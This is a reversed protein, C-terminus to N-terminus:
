EGNAIESEIAEIEEISLGSSAAEPEPDAPPQYNKPLYSEFDKDKGFFNGIGRRFKEEVEECEQGYNQISELLDYKSHKALLKEIHQKGRNRTTDSRKISRYSNVVETVDEPNNLKNESDQMTNTINVQEIRKNRDIESVM